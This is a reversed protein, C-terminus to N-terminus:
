DAMNAAEIEAAEAKRHRNLETQAAAELKLEATNKPRAVVKPAKFTTVVPGSRSREPKTRAVSARERWDRRNAVVAYAAAKEPDNLVAQPDRQYERAVASPGVNNITITEADLQTKKM